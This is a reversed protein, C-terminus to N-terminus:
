SCLFSKELLSAQPFSWVCGLVQLVVFEKKEGAIFSVFIIQLEESVRWSFWNNIIYILLSENPDGCGESM